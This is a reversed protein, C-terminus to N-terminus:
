EEANWLCASHGVGETAGAGRRISLHSQPCSSLEQSRKNFPILKLGARGKVRVLHHLFKVTSCHSSKPIFSSVPRPTRRMISPDRSRRGATPRDRGLLTRPLGRGVGARTVAKSVHRLFLHCQMARHPRRLALRLAPVSDARFAKLGAGTSVAFPRRRPREGQTKQPHAPSPLRQARRALIQGRSPELVHTDLGASAMVADRMWAVVCLQVHREQSGRDGPTRRQRDGVLAAPVRPGSGVMEPSSSFVCPLHRSANPHCRGWRVPHDGSLVGRGLRSQRRRRQCSGSDPAVSGPRLPAAPGARGRM